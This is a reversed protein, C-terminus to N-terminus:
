MKLRTNDIATQLLGPIDSKQTNENLVGGVLTGVQDRLEASGKFAPSVLYGASGNIDIVIKYCEAYKEGEEIFDAFFQTEYASYRVPVYGESGNICLEANVRGNTIYKLFRWAYLKTAYNVENSVALNNFMCLTPGQSVFLPNDNSAPVRCVGMTFADQDPFNYGAGGSSGISFVCKENTFYDSGYKGVVNKTTLLGEHGYDYFDELMSITDQLAQGTAFDLVGSGAENISSYPIENQYMKTIFFNSDSDYYAPIEVLNGIQAKHDRIVECFDMFEDWSLNKMFNKIKTESDISPNYFAMATEVMDYNYFMIETSKMYPLSYTGDVIYKSGEAYFDEIFDTEDREDGLWEEKGFGYNRDEIFEDLNVVLDRNATRAAVLYDAVNDPYAVAITPTNDAAFGDSIKKAIDDYSGQYELSINVDVNDHQKVLAKYAAIKASLADVVTQGFTHWFRINVTQVTPQSGSGSSNSGSQSSNSTSQQHGGGGGCGTLLAVLLPMLLLSKTKM